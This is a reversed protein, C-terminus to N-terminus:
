LQGDWNAEVTLVQLHRDSLWTFVNTGKECLRGTSLNLQHESRQAIDDPGDVAVVSRDAAHVFQYLGEYRDFSGPPTSGVNRFSFDDGLVSGNDLDNVADEGLGHTVTCGVDM